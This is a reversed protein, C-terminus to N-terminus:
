IAALPPTFSIADTQTVESPAINTYATTDTAPSLLTVSNSVM